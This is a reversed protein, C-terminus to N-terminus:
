PLAVILLLASVTRIRSVHPQPGLPRLTLKTSESPSRSQFIVDLEDGLATVIYNFNLDICAVHYAPPFPWKKKKGKKRKYYQPHFGPTSM